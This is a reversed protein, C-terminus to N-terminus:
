QRFGRLSNACASLIARYAKRPTYGAQSPNVTAYALNRRDFGGDVSKLNGLTRGLLGAAVLATLCLAIQVCVLARPLRMGGGMVSRTHTKLAHQLDVRAARVAPALGFLFATLVSLASTYALIRLSIHLDFASGPGRGTEFLLHISQAMLYGLGLGAAGGLLALVGSEIWHQRFLRGRAAGLALRVASERQRDVSRSLLLNAVNACVLLLLVGVLLMLIRLAGADKAGLGAFGRRGPMAILEPMKKPDDDPMEFLNRFLRAIEARAAAEPVDPRLRAVMRVWWDRDNEGRPEGAAAPRFAVRASLPAYVDM